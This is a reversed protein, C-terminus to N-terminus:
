VADPSPSVAPDPTGSGAVPPGTRGNFAAIAGEVYGQAIQATNANVANLLVQVTVPRGRQRQRTFDYPVVVGVDLRGRSLADGLEAASVYYGALRFTRNETLMSVLARSEATRSQDVAGLQLNRVESDLALGFLVVQLTPPIVLSLALRRDRRIQRLEKLALAWFPGELWRALARRM